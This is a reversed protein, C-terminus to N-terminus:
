TNLFMTDTNRTLLTMTDDCRNSIETIRQRFLPSKLDLKSLASCDSECIAYNKSIESVSNFDGEFIFERDQCLGSINLVMSLAGGYRLFYGVFVIHVDNSFNAM